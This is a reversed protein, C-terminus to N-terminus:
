RFVVSGRLNFSREIKNARSSTCSFARRAACVLLLIGREGETKQIGGGSGGGFLVAALWTRRSRLVRCRRRRWRLLRFATIRGMSGEEGDSSVFFLGLSWVSNICNIIDAVGPILANGRSPFRREQVAVILPGSSV